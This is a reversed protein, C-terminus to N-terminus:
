LSRRSSKLIMRRSSVYRVATGGGWIGRLGGSEVQFHVVVRFDVHEFGTLDPEAEVVKLM